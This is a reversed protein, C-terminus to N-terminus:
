ALAEKVVRTGIRRRWLERVVHVEYDLNFNHKNLYTLAVPESGLRALLVLHDEPRPPRYFGWSRRMVTKFLAEENEGWDELM